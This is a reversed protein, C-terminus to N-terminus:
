FRGGTALMPPKAYEDRRYEVTANQGPSAEKVAASWAVVAGGIAL